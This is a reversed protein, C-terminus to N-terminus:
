FISTFNFGYLHQQGWKGSIKRFIKKDSNVYSTYDGTRYRILPMAFNDYSTAVIEGNINNEEIINGSKDILEFYGYNQNVTYTELSQDATAFVVRESQGYFSKMKCKFVSELYAIENATYGESILFFCKPKYNLKIKCSQMHKALSLFASPYGHYYLPKLQNLKKIYLDITKSNIHFPSFNIEFHHPNNIWYECHKLKSFDGGRFSAKIMPPKYGSIKFFEYVFAMEKYWVNNSQYFKAPKGTVGGTTVYMKNVKNNEFDSLKSQITEKDLLPINSWDDININKYFEKYFCSNNIAYKLTEKPDRSLCDNNVNKIWYRYVKGYKVKAPIIAYIKKFFLPSKNYIEKLKNLM